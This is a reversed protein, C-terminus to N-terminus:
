QLAHLIARHTFPVQQWLQSGLETRPVWVTSALFQTRSDTRQGVEVCGEDVRIKIKRGRGGGSEICMIRGM